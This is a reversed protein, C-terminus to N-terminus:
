LRNTLKELLGALRPGAAAGAALVEAHDLTDSTVGAAHNTVLALGLVEMGAEVAAITELATSMGVMSAGMVGAMHVEAPTEYSPGRFQAYVGEPLDPDVDHAMARLKASYADSMDIFVPGVLPTDGTLNIHDKILAVTGPGWDLNLGGCGNTVVLTAAGLAAATRVGHVVAAAGLGEYLHTRGTLIMAIKGSSLRAILADGGHGAVVPRSFGPLDGIPMQAQIDGLRDAGHAWGSGLILLMDVSEVGLRQRITNAATRALEYPTHSEAMYEVNTRM